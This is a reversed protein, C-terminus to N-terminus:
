PQHATAAAVRGVFVQGPLGVRDHQARRVGMRADAGDGLFGRQFDGAHEGHEGAGIEDGVTKM